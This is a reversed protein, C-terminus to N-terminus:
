GSIGLSPLKSIAAAKREDNIHNYLESMADTDHGIIEKVTKPDIGLSYLNTVATHRLSHFSLPQLERKANRGKGKSRHPTRAKLGAIEL